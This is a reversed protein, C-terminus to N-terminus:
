WRPYMRLTPSLMFLQPKISWVPYYQCEIEPSSPSYGPCTACTCERPHAESGGATGWTRRSWAAWGATSGGPAKRSSHPCWPWAEPACSSASSCCCCWSWCCHCCCCCCRTLSPQLLGPILRRLDPGSTVGRPSMMLTVLWTVSGAM